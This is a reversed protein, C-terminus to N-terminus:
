KPSSPRSYLAFTAGQPDKAIAFRGHGGPIDTPPSTVRGGLAAVKAASDDVDKV